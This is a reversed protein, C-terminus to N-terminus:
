CASAQQPTQGDNCAFAQKGFSEEFQWVDSLDDRDLRHGRVYLFDIHTPQQLSASPHTHTHTHELPNVMSTYFSSDNFNMVRAMFETM